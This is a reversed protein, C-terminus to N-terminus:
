SHILDSYFKLYPVSCSLFSIMAQSGHIIMTKICRYNNIVYFTQIGINSCCLVPHQLQLLLSVWIQNNGKIFHLHHPLFPFTSTSSASIYAFSITYTEHFGWYLRRMIDISHEIFSCPYYRFCLRHLLM